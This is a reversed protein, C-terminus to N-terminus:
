ARNMWELAETYDDFDPVPDMYWKTATYEINSRNFKVRGSPEWVGDWGGNIVHFAIGVDDIATVSCFLEIETSSGLSLGFKQHTLPPVNGRLSDAFDSDNLNTLREFKSVLSAYESAPRRFADADSCIAACEAIISKAFKEYDVEYGEFLPSGNYPCNGWKEFQAAFLLGEIKKNM